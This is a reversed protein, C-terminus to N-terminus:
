PLLPAARSQAIEDPSVELGVAAFANPNTGVVVKGAGAFVPWSVETVNSYFWKSGDAIMM